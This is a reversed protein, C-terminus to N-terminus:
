YGYKRRFWSNSHSLVCDTNSGEGKAILNREADIGNDSNREPSDLSTEVDLASLVALVFITQTFVNGSAGENTVYM